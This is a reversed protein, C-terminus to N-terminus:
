EPDMGAALYDKAIEVVNGRLMEPDKLTTLTHLDAIFYMCINAPNQHDVFHKIAGTFNGFRLRGTARFGSLVIEKEM